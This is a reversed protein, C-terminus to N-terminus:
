FRMILVIYCQFRLILGCPFFVTLEVNRRSSVPVLAVLSLFYSVRIYCYLITRRRLMGSGTFHGGFTWEEQKGKRRVSRDQGVSCPLTDLPYKRPYLGRTKLPRIASWSAGNLLPGSWRRLGRQYRLQDSMAMREQSCKGSEVWRGCGAICTKM